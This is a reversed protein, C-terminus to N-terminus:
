TTKEVGCLIGQLYYKQKRRKRKSLGYFDAGELSVGPRVGVTQANAAGEIHTGVKELTRLKEIQSGELQREQTFAGANIYFGRDYYKKCYRALKNCQTLMPTLDKIRQKIHWREESDETNAYLVRLEALRVRLPEASREYEVGIEYLTAM